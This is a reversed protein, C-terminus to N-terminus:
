FRLECWWTQQLFWHGGESAAACCLLLSCDSSQATVPLFRGGLERFSHLFLKLIYKM